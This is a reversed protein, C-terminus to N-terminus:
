KANNIFCSKKVKAQLERYKKLEPQLTSVDRIANGYHIETSDDFIAVGPAETAHRFMGVGLRQERRNRHHIGVGLTM